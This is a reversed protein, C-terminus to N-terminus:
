HCHNPNVCTDKHKCARTRAMVTDDEKKKEYVVRAASVIQEIKEKRGNRVAKRNKSRETVVEMDPEADHEKHMHNELTKRGKFVRTCGEVCCPFEEYDADPAYIRRLTNMLVPRRASGDRRCSARYWIAGHRGNEYELAQTSLSALDKLLSLQKVIHHKLSHLYPTYLIDATTVAPIDDDGHLATHFWKDIDAQLEKCADEPTSEGFPRRSNLVSM